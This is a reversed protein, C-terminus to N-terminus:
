DVKVEVLHNAGAENKTIVSETTYFSNCPFSSLSDGQFINRQINATGLQSGRFM